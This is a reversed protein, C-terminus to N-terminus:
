DFNTAIAVEPANKFMIGWTHLPTGGGLNIGFNMSELITGIENM